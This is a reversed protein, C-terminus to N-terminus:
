QKTVTNAKRRSLSKLDASVFREKMDDLIILTSEM